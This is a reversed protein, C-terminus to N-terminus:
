LTKSARDLNGDFVQLFISKMKFDGGVNLNLHFPVFLILKLADGVPVKPPDCKLTFCISSVSLLSVNPRLNVHMLTFCYSLTESKYILRQGLTETWDNFEM